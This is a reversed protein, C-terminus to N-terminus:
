KKNVSVVQVADRFWDPFFDQNRYYLRMFHGDLVLTISSDTKSRTGRGSGQILSVAAERCYWDNDLKSRTAIWKDGLSAWPVKFFISFRCLDGPLDLGEVVSPSVIIIDDDEELISKIDLLDESKPFRMRQTHRSNEQIFKANEYSTSHVIGRIGSFQTDVMLDLYQTFLPLMEHRKAYSFKGLDNFAVVPRNEVPFTSPLTIYEYDEQKIGLHRAMVEHGCITASMLLYFKSRNFFKVNSVESINLPKIAIKPYRKGKEQQSVEEEIDSIVWDTKLKALMMLKQSLNRFYNGSKHLRTLEIRENVDLQRPDRNGRIELMKEEIVAFISAVNMGLDAANDRIRTLWGKSEDNTDIIDMAVRRIEDVEVVDLIKSRLLERTHREISMMSMDVEMWDALSRELNHCEDIVTIHSKIHSANLLYAYNTIGIDAKKFRNLSAVYACQDYFDCKTKACTGSGWFSEKDQPAAACEYNAGSWVLPMDQFSEEYQVQLSRTKVAAMCYPGPFPRLKGSDDYILDRPSLISLAKGVTYAIASKGAGTPAELLVFKKENMYAKIVQFIAEEQHPRYGDDKFPFVKWMTERITDDSYLM